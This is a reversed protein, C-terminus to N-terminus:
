LMGTHVRFVLLVRDEDRQDDVGPTIAKAEVAEQGTADGSQRPRPHLLDHGRPSHPPSAGPLDDPSRRLPQARALRQDDLPRRGALRRHDQVVGLEVAVGLQQHEVLRGPQRHVGRSTIVAVRERGHQALAEAGTVAPLHGM